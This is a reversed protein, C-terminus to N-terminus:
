VKLGASLRQDVLTWIESFYHSMFAGWTVQGQSEDTSSTEDRQPPICHMKLRLLERVLEDIWVTSTPDLASAILM